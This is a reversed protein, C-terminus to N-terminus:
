RFLSPLKVPIINKLASKSVSSKFSPIDMVQLKAERIADAVNLGISLQAARVARFENVIGSTKVKYKLFDKVDVTELIIKKIDYPLLKPNADKIKAAINSVFPAAQSTGSVELYENGPVASKISVGPAAVDVMKAGYNSFPALFNQGMTAAVSIVNHAVVNTPSTPFKDNSLGDNGAAFVFLTRHAKSVMTQGHKILSNLFHITLEHIEKKSLKKKKFLTDAMTTVIMHAQPYGTGFSGNAIDTQHGNVYESVQTLLKMQQAALKGLGYKFAMKKLGKEESPSIDDENQIKAQVKAIYVSLPLKVETPIIKVGMVKANQVGTSAIGAVHTGHMFNGYIGMQKRFEQDSVKNRMWQIEEATASGKMSKAQIEFFRRIDDNLIGIYSYDIIENDNATFNWGNIDDAYGNGDEDIRNKTSEYPNVWRKSYLDQHLLDTGSDIIAITSASVQSAFILFLLFSKLFKVRGEM